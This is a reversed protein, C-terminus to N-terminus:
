CLQQTGAVNPFDNLSWDNGPDDIMQQLSLNVCYVICMYVCMYVICMYTCVCM